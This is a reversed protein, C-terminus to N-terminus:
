LKPRKRKGGGALRGHTKFFGSPTQPRLSNFLLPRKCRPVQVPFWLPVAASLSLSLSHCLSLSLCLLLSMSCLLAMLSLSLYLSLSLCPSLCLSVLSHSLSSCLLLSLSPYPSPSPSQDVFSVVVLSLLVSLVM